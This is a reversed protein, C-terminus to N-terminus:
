PIRSRLERFLSELITTMEKAQEAVDKITEQREEDSLRSYYTDLHSIGMSLAAIPTKLDHFARSIAKNHQDGQDHQATVDEVRTILHDAGMPVTQIRVVREPHVANAPLHYEVSEGSVAERFRELLPGDPGDISAIQDPATVFLADLAAPNALLVQSQNLLIVGLPLYEFVTQLLDFRTEVNGAKRSSSLAM